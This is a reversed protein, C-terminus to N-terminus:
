AYVKPTPFAAKAAGAGLNSLANWFTASGQQAATAEANNSAMQGTTSDRNAGAIGSAVNGGIGVRDEADKGYVGALSKGSSDYLGAISSAGQMGLDALNRYGGAIGTAAGSTAALEPNVFGGLRDLYSGYEQSALGTARDQLASLANGSLAGGRAAASNETAKLQQDLNFQYGPGTTFAAKARDSGAGGNVGLADLYLSTAGGYKAGLATLPAFAGIAGTADARSQAVGGSIADIGEDRGSTLAGVASTTGRGIDTLATQGYDGYIARQAAANDLSLQKNAAAAKEASDNTFIDFIGM